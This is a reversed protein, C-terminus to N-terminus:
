YAGDGNGTVAGYVDGFGQVDSDLQQNMSPGSGPPGPFAGASTAHPPPPSTSAAGAGGFQQPQDSGGRRQGEANNRQNTEIRGDIGM